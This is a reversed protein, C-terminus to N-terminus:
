LVVLARHIREFRVQLEMWGEGHDPSHWIEGNSLGAYMSGPVEPDPLLAYPMHELPQPLGGGLRQWGAPGHRFIYAQANGSGHAKSPGPSASLFWVSPDAPDGAAAWGYHRDLGQGAKIWTLGGDRSFAAGGGTGGGEYVWSGDTMHFALSHCDRLSHQRHSTWTSGGDLSAVTAGAEIGVIIRQPDAPSLAIGQVSAIFPKEAPSFWFRREPIRRFARLEDWNVGGDISVYVGTPCTGAYVAGAQVPSAAIATVTEGALGSSRWTKGRDDSRVVGMRSTGAYVRGRNLPDPALCRVGAGPLLTEVESLSTASYVARALGSGTAALFVRDM